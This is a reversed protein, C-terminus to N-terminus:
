KYLSCTFSFLLHFCRGPTNWSIPHRKFPVQLFEENRFDKVSVLQKVQSLDQLVCSWMIPVHRTQRASLTDILNLQSSIFRNHSKFPYLSNIWYIHTRSSDCPIAIALTSWSIIKKIWDFFIKYVVFLVHPMGTKNNAAENQNMSLHKM